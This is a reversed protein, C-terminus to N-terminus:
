FVTLGAQATEETLLDGTNFPCMKITRDYFM